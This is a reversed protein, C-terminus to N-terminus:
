TWAKMLVGEFAVSFPVKDPDSGHQEIHDVMFGALANKFEEECLGEPVHFVELCVMCYFDDQQM